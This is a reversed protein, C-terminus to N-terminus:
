IIALRWSINWYPCLRQSSLLQRCANIKRKILPQLDKMCKPLERIALLIDLRRNLHPIKCMEFMFQDVIHLESPSGHLSQYLQIDKPTPVYRRLATIQEDTLGGSDEHLILLKEKLQTPKINFSKLVINFNHAIKSDLLIPQNGLSESASSYLPDQIKFQNFIRSIDIKRKDPNYCAWVSKGIKEQPVPHWHFAKTKKLATSPSPPLPLPPPPPVPPQVELFSPPCATPELNTQILAQKPASSLNKAQLAPSPLSAPISPLFGTKVDEPTIQGERELKQHPSRNIGEEPKGWDEPAPQLNSLSKCPACQKQILEVWEDCIKRSEVKCQTQANVPIRFLYHTEKTQISFCDGEKQKNVNANGDSLPVTTALPGSSENPESCGIYHLVVEGEKLKVLCRLKDSEHDKQLDLLGERIVHMPPPRRAFSIVAKPTNQIIKDLLAMIQEKEGLSAAELEYDSHGHFSVTFRLGENDETSKVQSFPFQRKLQGKEINYIIKRLFDIQLIRKQWRYRFKYVSFNYQTDTPSDQSNSNALKTGESNKERQALDLAEDATIEKNKVMKMIELIREQSLQPASQPWGPSAM